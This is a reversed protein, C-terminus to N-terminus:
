FNELQQKRLIAAGRVGSSDGYKAKIIAPCEVGSFLHKNVYDPLTNIIMAIKSIGGGVVIVDPDYSLVISAFSAGLLDMYCALTKTAIIDGQELQQVFHHTNATEAGFHRYLWGLGPGSVYPEYCGKLGCGCDLIPLKYKHILYASAPLHGYEGAFGNRGNYLHGDICFGGAAGTGIIAGYVRRYDNGAGGVSESLAFLRCDNGISIKRELAQSLDKIIDKGTACPVNASKVLGAKNRIGPMGIGVLGKHQCRQDAQTILDVIVNLFENYNGTPTSTRWSDIQKLAPTFLGIEIKTGGIDIGYIIKEQDKVQVVNTLARSM